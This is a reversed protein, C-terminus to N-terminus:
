QRPGFIATGIRVITSGEEVATEYDGSMGMSLEKLPVGCAARLADRVERLRAFASRVAATDETNPGVTMLGEVSLRPCYELVRELLYEAESPDVGEKSPEDSMKVEIFVPYSTVNTEASIRDLMRALDLSDVSEIADFTELARRAKNRQLHGILHWPVPNGSPWGGRKLVAEQVRNEGLLDVFKSAEIMMDLPHYKSVAMLKIEEAGRGSREAASAIKERIAEVNSKIDVM